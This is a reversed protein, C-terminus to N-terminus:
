KSSRSLQANNGIQGSRLVFYSSLLSHIILFHHFCNIRRYWCFNHFILGNNVFSFEFVVAQYDETCHSPHIQKWRVANEGNWRINDEHFFASHQQKESISVCSQMEIFCSHKSAAASQHHRQFISHLLLRKISRARPLFFFDVTLYLFSTNQPELKSFSHVLSSADQCFINLLFRV